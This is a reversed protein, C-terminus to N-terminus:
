AESDEAKKNFYAVWLVFEAASMEAIEGLTKGLAEAIRM